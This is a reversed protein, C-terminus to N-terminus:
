EAISSLSDHYFGILKQAETTYVFLRLLSHYPFPRGDLVDNRIRHFEENVNSVYGLALAKLRGDPIAKIERFIEALSERLGVFAPTELAKQRRELSHISLLQDTNPQEGWLIEAAVDTHLDKETETFMQMYKEKDAFNYEERQHKFFIRYDKQLM